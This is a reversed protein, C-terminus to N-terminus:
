FSQMTHWYQYLHCLLHGITQHCLENLGAVGVLAVVATSGDVIACALM